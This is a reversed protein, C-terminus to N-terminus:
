SRRRYLDAEMRFGLRCLHRSPNASDGGNWGGPGRGLGVSLEPLLGPEAGARPHGAIHLPAGRAKGLDPWGDLIVGREPKMQANLIAM